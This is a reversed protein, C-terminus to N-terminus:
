EQVWQYSAIGSAVTAKLVYIGDTSPVDPIRESLKKLIVADAENKTYADTIYYDSLKKDSPATEITIDFNGSVQTFSYTNEGRADIKLNKYNSEPAGTLKIISYGDDPVLKFNIQALPKGDTGVEDKVYTGDDKSRSYLYQIESSAKLEGDYKSEDDLDNTSCIKLTAHEFPNVSIKWANPETPNIEKAIVSVTLPSAIKTIKIENKKVKINKYDGDIIIDSETIEKYGENPMVTFSIQGEGNFLEIEENDKLHAVLELSSKDGNLVCNSATINVKYANESFKKELSNHESKLNNISTELETDKTELSSIKTQLSTNVTDINSKIEESKADLIEPQVASDAKNLSNIVDEYLDIKSIGAKPKEYKKDVVAQLKEVKKNLASDQILYTDSGQQIRDINKEM